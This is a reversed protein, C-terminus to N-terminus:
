VLMGVGFCNVNEGITESFKSVIAQKVRNSNKLGKPESRGSAKPQREKTESELSVKEESRTVHSQTM